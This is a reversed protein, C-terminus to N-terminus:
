YIARICECICKVSSYQSSAYDFHAEVMKIVDKENNGGAILRETVRKKLNETKM